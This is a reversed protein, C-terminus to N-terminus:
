FCTVKMCMNGWGNTFTVECRHLPKDWLIVFFLDGNEMEGVIVVFNDGVEVKTAKTENDEDADFEKSQSSGDEM